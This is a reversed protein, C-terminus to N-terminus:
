FVSYIVIEYDCTCRRKYEIGLRNLHREIRKHEQYPVNINIGGGFNSVYEINNRKLYKKLISM